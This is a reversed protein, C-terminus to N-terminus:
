PVEDPHLLEVLNEPLPRPALLDPLPGPHEALPLPEPLRALEEFVDVPARPAPPAPPFIDDLEAFPSVDTRLAAPEFDAFPSEHTAPSGAPTAHEPPPVPSSPAAAAEIARPRSRCGRRASLLLARVRPSEEAGGRPEQQLREDIDAANGGLAAAITELERDKVPVRSGPALALLKELTGLYPAIGHDEPPRRLASITDGV